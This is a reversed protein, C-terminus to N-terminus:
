GAGLNVVVLIAITPDYVAYDGRLVVLEGIVASAAPTGVLLFAGVGLAVRPRIM